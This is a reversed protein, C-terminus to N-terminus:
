PRASFTAAPRPITTRSTQWSSPRNSSSTEIGIPSAPWSALVIPHPQQWILLPGISSPSDTGSPDTMKPWRAGKYGQSRAKERASPLISMYYDLSRQLLAPRKWHAFHAAHWFHMELHFKGFWSNCTLGTEQPPLSGACQISTLYQSLVVRRELESNAALDIAAGTSWFESWHRASAAFTADVSVPSGSSRGAYATFSQEPGGSVVVAYTGRDLRTVGNRVPTTSPSEDPFGIRIPISAGHV